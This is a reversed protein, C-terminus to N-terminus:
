NHCQDYFFLDEVMDQLIEVSDDIEDSTDYLKDKMIAWVNELPNLDPSKSTALGHTSHESIKQDHSHQAAESWGAYIRPKSPEL